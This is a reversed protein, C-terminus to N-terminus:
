ARDRARRRRWARVLGALWAGLALATLVAAAGRCTGPPLPRGARRAAWAALGALRAPLLLCALGTLAYRLGGALARLRAAVPGPAAAADLADRLAWGGDTRPLPLLGYGLGALTAMAAARCAGAARPGEPLAAGAVAFLGAAGAQFALGALDVRLRGARPLLAAPSVDAYLVPVCVFLGIGIRGPRYGERRLAAAHGLEHWLAGAAFLGVVAPTLACPRSWPRLALVAGLGLAVMLGLVPWAALPQLLLAVRQVAGAPLLPARPLPPGLARWWARRGARRGGGALWTVVVFAAALPDPDAAAVTPAVAQEVAAVPLGHLPLLARGVAPPVALRRCGASVLWPGRPHPQVDLRARDRPRWRAPKTGRARWHRGGVILRGAAGRRAPM